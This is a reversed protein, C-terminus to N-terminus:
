AVGGSTILRLVPRVPAQPAEETDHSAEAGHEFGQRYCTSAIVEVGNLAYQRGHREGLDYLRASASLLGLLTKVSASLTDDVSAPDFAALAERTERMATLLSTEYVALARTDLRDPDQRATACLAPRAKSKM